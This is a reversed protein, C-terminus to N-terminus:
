LNILLEHFLSKENGLYYEDTNMSILGPVANTELFYYDQGSILLDIGCIVCGLQRSILELEKYINQNFIMESSVAEIKAGKQVNLIWDGM